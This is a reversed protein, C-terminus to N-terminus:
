CGRAMDPNGGDGSTDTYVPWSSQKDTWVPSPCKDSMVCLSIVIYLQTFMSCSQLHILTRLCSHLQPYKGPSNRMKRYFVNTYFCHHVFIKKCRMEESETNIGWWDVTKLLEVIHDTGKLFTLVFCFVPAKKKRKQGSLTRNLFNVFAFINNRQLVLM